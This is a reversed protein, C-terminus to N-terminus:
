FGRQDIFSCAVAIVDSKIHKISTKRKQTHSWRLVQEWDSCVNCCRTCHVVNVSWEVHASWISEIMFLYAFSPHTQMKSAISQQAWSEKWEFLPQRECNWCTCAYADISADCHMIWCNKEWESKTQWCQFCNLSNLRDPFFSVLFFSM